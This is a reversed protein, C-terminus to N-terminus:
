HSCCSVCIYPAGKSSVSGMAFEKASGISKLTGISMASKMSITRSRSNSPVVDEEPGEEVLEWQQSERPKELSDHGAEVDNLPTAFDTSITNPTHKQEKLLSQAYTQL